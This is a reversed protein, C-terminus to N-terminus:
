CPNKKPYVIYYYEKESVFVTKHKELFKVEFLKRQTEM